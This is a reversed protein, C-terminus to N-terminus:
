KNGEKRYSNIIMKEIYYYVQQMNALFTLNKNFNIIFKCINKNVLIEILYKRVGIFTVKCEINYKEEIKEQIEEEM